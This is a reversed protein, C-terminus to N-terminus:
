DVSFGIPPAADTPQYVLTGGGTLFVSVGNNLNWRGYCPTEIVCRSAVPQGYRSVLSGFQGRESYPLSIEVSSVGDDGFRVSVSENNAELHGYDTISPWLAKVQFKDMGVRVGGWLEPGLTPDSALTWEKLVTGSAENVFAIRDIKAGVYCKESFYDTPDQITAESGNFDCFGADGWPLAAYVGEIEVASKLALAKAEAPPLQSEFFWGSKPAVPIGDVNEAHQMPRPTSVLAVGAGDNKLSHVRATAGFANQGVYSGLSRTNEAILVVKVSGSGPRLLPASKDPSFSLLLNGAKYDYSTAGFAILDTDFPLTIKFHQGDLAGRVPEKFKDYNHSDARVTAIERLFEPSGTISGPKAVAGTAIVSAMAAVLVIVRM